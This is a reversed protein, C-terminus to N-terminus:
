KHILKIIIIPRNEVNILYYIKVKGAYWAKDYVGERVQFDDIYFLCKIIYVSINISFEFNIFFVLM